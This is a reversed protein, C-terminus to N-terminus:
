QRHIKLPNCMTSYIYKETPKEIITFLNLLWSCTKEHRMMNGPRNNGNEDCQFHILSEFVNVKNYADDTKM